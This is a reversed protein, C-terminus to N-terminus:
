CAQLDFRTVPKNISGKLLSTFLVLKYCDQLYFLDTFLISFALSKRTIKHPPSIKNQASNTKGDMWGCKLRTILTDRSGHM